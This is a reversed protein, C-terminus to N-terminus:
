PGYLRYLAETDTCPHVKGKKKGATVVYGAANRYTVCVATQNEKRVNHYAHKGGGEIHLQFLNQRRAALSCQTV